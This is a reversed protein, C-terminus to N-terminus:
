FAVLSLKATLSYLLMSDSLRGIMETSCLMKYLVRDDGLINNKMKHSLCLIQNHRDAQKVGIQYSIVQQFEM